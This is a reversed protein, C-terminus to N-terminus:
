HCSSNRESHTNSTFILASEKIVYRNKQQECWIKFDKKVLPHIIKNILILKEKDKFIINALKKNDIKNETLIKKGFINIVKRKVLTDTKLIKKAVEDSKYIPTGIVEFVKSITTKGSGIGGTLGIKKM